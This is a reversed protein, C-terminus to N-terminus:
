IVLINMKCGHGYFVVSGVGNEGLGMRCIRRLLMGVCRRWLGRTVVLVGEMRQWSLMMMCCPSARSAVSDPEPPRKAPTATSTAPIAVERASGNPHTVASSNASPPSAAASSSSTQNLTAPNLMNTLLNNPWPNPQSITVCMWLDTWAIKYTPDNSQLFPFLTVLRIISTIVTRTYDTEICVFMPLSLSLSLHVYACGVLFMFLLGIKQVLPMNLSMVMPVPVVLLAIDTVSNCVATAIYLANQDVCHGETISKDWSKAIPDCAFILGLSIAISYGAVIFSLIHLCWRYVIRQSM